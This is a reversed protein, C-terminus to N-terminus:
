RFGCEPNDPDDWAYQKPVPRDFPPMVFEPVRMSALTEVAYPHDAGKEIAYRYSAATPYTKGPALFTDRAFEALEQPSWGARIFQGLAERQQITRLYSRIQKFDLCRKPAAPAPPLPTAPTTIAPSLDNPQDTL